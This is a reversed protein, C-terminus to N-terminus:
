ARVWQGRAVDKALKERKLMALQTTINVNAGVKGCVKAKLQAPSQPTASLSELLAQKVGQVRKGGSKLGRGRRPGRTSSSGEGAVRAGSPDFGMRAMVAEIRRVAEIHSRREDALKQLLVALKRLSPSAAM